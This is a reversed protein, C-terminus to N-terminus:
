ESVEIEFTKSYTYTRYQYDKDSKPKKTLYVDLSSEVEITHKGPSLPPLTIQRTIQEKGNLFTIVSVADMSETNEDVSYTIAEASHSVRFDQHSRNTLTCKITVSEQASVSDKSLEAELVFDSKRPHYFLFVLLFAILLLLMGAAPLFFRKGPLSKRKTHNVTGM